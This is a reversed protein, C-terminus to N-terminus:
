KTDYYWLNWYIKFYFVSYYFPFYFTENSNQGLNSLSRSPPFNSHFLVALNRDRNQMRKESTSIQVYRLIEIEPHWTEALLYIPCYGPGQCVRFLSCCTTSDLSHILGCLEAEFTMSLLAKKCCFQVRARSVKTMSCLQSSCLSPGWHSTPPVGSSGLCGGDTCQSCLCNQCVQIEEWWGNTQITSHDTYELSGENAALWVASSLVYGHVLLSVRSSGRSSLRDGSHSAWQLM